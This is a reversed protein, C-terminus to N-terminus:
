KQVIAKLIAAVYINSVGFDAIIVEGNVLKIKVDDAQLVVSNIESYYIKKKDAFHSSCVLKEAFLIGESYRRFLNKKATEEIAIVTEPKIGKAYSAIANTVASTAERALKLRDYHVAKKVDTLTKYNLTVVKMDSRVPSPQNATVAPINTTVEISPKDAMGDSTNVVSSKRIAMLASLWILSIYFDDVKENLSIGDLGLNIVLNHVDTFPLTGQVLSPNDEHAINFRYATIRDTFIPLHKTKESELVMYEIQGKDKDQNATSDVHVWIVFRADCMLDVLRVLKDMSLKAKCDYIAQKIESASVSIAESKETLLKNIEKQLDNDVKEPEKLAIQKIVNDAQILYNRGMPDNCDLEMALSGIFFCIQALNQMHVIHNYTKIAKEAVKLSKEAWIIAKMVNNPIGNNRNYYNGVTAYIAEIEAIARENDICGEEGFADMYNASLNRIMDESIYQDASDIIDRTINSCHRCWHYFPVKKVSGINFTTRSKGYDQIINFALNIHDPFDSKYLCYAITLTLAYYDQNNIWTPAERVRLNEDELWRIHMPRYKEYEERTQFNVYRIMRESALVYYRRDQPLSTSHYNYRLMDMAKHYWAMSRLRFEDKNESGKQLRGAIAGACDYGDGCDMITQHTSYEDQCEKCYRMVDISDLIDVAKRIYQYAHLFNPYTEYCTLAKAVNMYAGSLSFLNDTTPSNKYWEERYLLDKKYTELCMDYDKLRMYVEGMCGMYPLTAKRETLLRWADSDMMELGEQAVDIVHRLMERSEVSKMQVLANYYDHYLNVRDETNGEWNLRERRHNLYREAYRYADEYNGIDHLFYSLKRYLIECFINKNDDSMQNERSIYVEEAAKLIPVITMMDKNNTRNFIETMFECVFWLTETYGEGKKLSALLETMWKGGDDLSVERCICAAEKMYSEDDGLAYKKMFDIFYAKDDAGIVHYILERKRLPDEENLGDLYTQIKAHLGRAEGVENITTQFGSRICKHLFDYRGDSRVQFHEQLYNIFRSFDLQSWSDGCLCALDEMRLGYRSVAISKTVMNVLQKNIRKGAESFVEVCLKEVDLPCSQLISLQQGVIASDADADSSNIKDFDGADMMLLRQVLFSVYLPNDSGPMKMIHRVVDSSLERGIHACIGDIVRKKDEDTLPLLVHSTNVLLSFDSICTMFFRVGSPLREPIFILNDRNEDPYLQDIADVMILLKEGKDTIAKALSLFRQQMKSIQVDALVEDGTETQFHPKDLYTEIFYVVNQLIDMANNSNSTLGGIFPLVVIGKERCLCAVRSLLTSKGSGVVGKCVIVSEKRDFIHRMCEELDQHRALFMKDKETIYAWQQEMERDFPSLRDFKEWDPALVAELDQVLQQAFADIDDQCPKGADMHITYSIITSNTLECLKKKLRSLRVDNEPNETRYIDPIDTGIIQRMYVLARREKLMAGYEIELATVSKDLNDLQLKRLEAAHSIIKRDPIWGYRDGLIIVMPPNSRDIERFCVDLVKVSGEDSDLEQTNIGWRLDCFDVQDGHMHAKGNITPAVIDRIADREFQMDKFTSSVFITRM